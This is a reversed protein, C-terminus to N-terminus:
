SVSREVSFAFLLAQAIQDVPLVQSAGGIQIAAQPMGFVVSTEQDQVITMGGSRRMELLGEAGDKGMGTLLVGVAETRAAVAASRFLVDVSPRHRNVPPGDHLRAVYQRPGTRDLFVHRNGPAILAVGPELIEGDEVERVTMPSSQDLRRAFAGTFRAPMHQVIVIPPSDSPMQDLILNLAETGGTSAGIAILGANRIMPSRPGRAVPRRSPLAMVKDIRVQAAARISQVLDMSGVALDDGMRLRPKAIIEVAGEQLARMTVHVGRDAVSSCVVVPIPNERMVKRLFTLGDMRPMELDLVIVDPRISELKRLAILPDAATTVDIDPTQSLLHVMVQRFVASDDVVLVHLRSRSESPAIM